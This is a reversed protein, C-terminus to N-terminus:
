KLKSRLYADLTEGSWTKVDLELWLGSLPQFLVASEIVHGKKRMLHVTEFLELLTELRRMDLGSSGQQFLILTKDIVLDATATLEEDEYQIRALIDTASTLLPTVIEKELADLFSGVIQWDQKTPQKYFYANRGQRVIHTGGLLFLESCLSKTKTNLNNSTYWARILDCRQEQPPSYPITSFRLLDMRYNVYRLNYLTTRIKHIIQVIHIFATHDWTTNPCVIPLAEMIDQYNVQPPTHLPSGALPFLFRVLKEIIPRYEEFFLADEANIKITWVVDSAVQDVAGASEPRQVGILRLVYTKIFQEWEAKLDKALVWEPIRWTEGIPFLQRPRLAEEYSKAKIFVPLADEHEKLFRFDEGQLCDISGRLSRTKGEFESNSLRYQTASFWTLLPKHIERVFRSLNQEGRSYSLTLTKRARTVGVYFLRREQLISEEDKKQPFSEDNLRVFFVHDWELGKASHLTSLVVHPEQPQTESLLSVPIKERILTEEYSYLVSNFKSLIAITANPDQQWIEVIKYHIYNREDSSRYFYRVEPKEGGIATATMREKHPLTPIHRMISNAVAVIAETSRYNISLQFDKVNRFKRHFDLIYDVCSGRWTYINQADDGVITLYSGPHHLRKIIEYQTENIDQFEDIILYHLRGVWKRGKESVLFELFKHPLEDVHYLEKLSEPQNDKLIRSALAHFTGAYVRTQGILSDIRDKMTDSANRSFTTLFISDERIKHEKILYAIRSTITTTKGSGASALVRINTCPEYRVIEAQQQNLSITRKPFDFLVNDM